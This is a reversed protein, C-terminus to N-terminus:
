RPETVVLVQVGGKPISVTAERLDQFGAGSIRVAVRHEGPSVIARSVLVHDALLTWSRTDPKDLGVLAGETALAAFMGVLSGVGGGAQKGAYRAAEAAGARAIMRTLAAAIVRPKIQEWERRIDSGLSSVREIPTANGDIEVVADRALSGSGVLEPYVVVKFVSYGLVDPNGTIFSGAIGVAAGIPMREPAKYPVRGLSVVTVLESPAAAARVAPGEGLLERIRPGRYPNVAALRTVPERLTALVGNAMAEEYYRLARDGEGLREFTLGALYSGFSAQRDLGISELYEHTVTFRRAEVSAGQFDGRGLYNLMNVASLALRETPPTTYDGASDSYIFSGLKGVADTRVDLVELEADVAGLTRASEQFDSTAQLLSGRELAALARDKKWDDPLEDASDVGLVGNLEDIAAPYDGASALTRVSAIKESYTACGSGVLLV